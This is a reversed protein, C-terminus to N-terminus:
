STEPSQCMMKNNMSQDQRSEVITVTEKKTRIVRYSRVNLFQLSYLVPCHLENALSCFM